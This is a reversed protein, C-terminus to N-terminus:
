DARMVRPFVFWALLLGIIIAFIHTLVAIPLNLKRAPVENDLAPNLRLLGTSDEDAGAASRHIEEAGADTQVEQGGRRDTVRISGIRELRGRAWGFCGEEDSHPDFVWAIQDNEEPKEFFLISEVQM